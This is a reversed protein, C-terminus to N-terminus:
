EDLLSSKPLAKNAKAGLSKIHEARNILNGSGTHLKKMTDSYTGQVTHLQKGLKEMDEYFGVFKDYMKGAEEAIEVAFRNQKDNRWMTHVTKLTALLTSPSVMVINKDFAYTYLEPNQQLVSSLATDIPIFMLVFDPSEVSYLDHYNKSSLNDIHAKVALMHAKHFEQQAQEDTSNVMNEYAILSVKSDVILKKGDPLQIVVDPKHVKGEVNRETVQVFYERDKELGSKELIRELILEGWNGQKKYDGKLAKVLNNAERSVIDSKESLGKIEEKLSAHREATIINNKEIKEEFEKIKQQLPVLIEKMGLKQKEEMSSTQYQLIKNAMAEFRQLQVDQESTLRELQQKLTQNQIEFEKKQLELSNLSLRLHEQQATSKELQQIFHITEQQLRKNEHQLVDAKNKAMLYVVLSSVLVSIIIAPLLSIM